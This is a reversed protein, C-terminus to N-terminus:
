VLTVPFQEPKMMMVYFLAFIKIRNKTKNRLFILLLEVLIGM